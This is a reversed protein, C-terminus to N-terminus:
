VFSTLFKSLKKVFIDSDNISKVVTLNEGGATIFISKYEIALEINTELCDSIFSPSVILIKKHNNKACQLIIDETFPEIWKKAFRSQFSIIYKDEKLYLRETLKRTTEYCQAKYCYKNDDSIHNKCDFKECETNKHILYIQKLPLSHFSFIIKDFGKLDHILINNIIADLYFDQQYFHNIFKLSPFFNSRKFYRMIKEFISGTTAGAYQPFLPLFIIEDTNQRVVKNLVEIINPSQYNMALEVTYNQPLQSKLKEMLSISHILLPSGEPTWLKKYKSTSKRTRLPVIFCNVLLKRLVFPLTIVRSDSLFERLYKSVYNNQPLQPTGINILIVTIKRDNM